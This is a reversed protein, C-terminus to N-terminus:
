ANILAFLATLEEGVTTETVNTGPTLTEGAGIAATVKYLKDGVSVYEGVALSRSATAGSLEAIMGRTGADGAEIAAETDRVYEVAVPGCDATVANYGALAEIQAPTLTYVVPTALPFVVEMPTGAQVLEDLIAQASAKRDAATSGTMGPFWYNVQARNYGESNLFMCQGEAMSSATGNYVTLVNCMKGGAAIDGLDGIRTMAYATSTSQTVTTILVRKMTATLTGATLDLTGGYVTGAEEPFEVSVESGNYPVFDEATLVGEFIGSEDAYITTVGSSNSKSLNAVSKGVASVFVITEKVGTGSLSPITDYTGDMYYVRMNSGTGSSKSLTLIFTYRKGEEFRCGRRIGLSSARGCLPGVATNNSYYQVTRNEGDVTAASIAAKVDALIADGGWLNKGTRRIVAGERGPIPRINEPSPDGSGTQVLEIGVTVRRLVREGAADRFVASEGEASGIMPAASEPVVEAASKRRLALAGGTNEVTLLAFDSTAM